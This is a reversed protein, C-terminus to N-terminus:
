YIIPHVDADTIDHKMDAYAKEKQSQRLAEADTKSEQWSQLTFQGAGSKSCASNQLLDVNSCVGKLLAIMQAMEMQYGERYGREQYKLQKDTKACDETNSFKSYNVNLSNVELAFSFAPKLIDSFTTQLAMHIGKIYGNEYAKMCNNIVSEKTPYNPIIDKVLM